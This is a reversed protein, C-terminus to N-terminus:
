GQANGGNGADHHQQQKPNFKSNNSKGNNLAEELRAIRDELSQFRDEAKIEKHPSIDFPTVTKYGAGDTQVSWVIAANQDLLLVDSNPGLNYAEAGARGNVRPTHVSAQQNVSNLLATQLQTDYPYM